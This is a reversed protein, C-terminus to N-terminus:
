IAAGDDVADRARTRRRSWWAVAVCAAEALTWSFRAIVSLTTAMGTGLPARFLLMLVAERVGLGGPSVPVVFGVLWAIAYGAVFDAPTEISAGASGLANAQLFLGVGFFTWAAVGVLLGLGGALTDRRSRVTDGHRLHEAIAIQLGCLIIAAAVAVMVAAHGLRDRIWPPNVLFVVAIGSLVLALSELVVIGLANRPIVGHTVFQHFRQPYVWVGGPLYKAPQSLFYSRFCQSYSLRAGLLRSAAVTMWPILMMGICTLAMGATIRKGDLGPLVTKVTVWQTAFHWGFGLIAAASLTPGLWRLRPHRTAFRHTREVLEAVAM